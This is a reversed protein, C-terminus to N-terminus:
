LDGKCTIMCGDCGKKKLDNIFKKSCNNITVKTDAETGTTKITCQKEMKGMTKACKELNKCNKGTMTCELAMSESSFSAFAAMVSLTTLIGTYKM